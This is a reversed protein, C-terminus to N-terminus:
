SNDGPQPRKADQGPTVSSHAEDLSWRIATMAYNKAM